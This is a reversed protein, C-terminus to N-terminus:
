LVEGELAGCAGTLRRNRTSAGAKRAQGRQRGPHGDDSEVHALATAVTPLHAALRRDRRLERLRDPGVPHIMATTRRLFVGDCEDSYGFFAESLQPAGGRRLSAGGGTHLM